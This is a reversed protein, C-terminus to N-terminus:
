GMSLDAISRAKFPALIALDLVPETGMTLQDLKCSIVRDTDWQGPKITRSRADPNTQVDTIPAGPVHMLASRVRVM